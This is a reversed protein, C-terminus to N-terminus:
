SRPRNSSGSQASPRSQAAKKVKFGEPIEPPGVKEILWLITHCFSVPKGLELSLMARYESLSRYGDESISVNCHHKDSHAKRFIDSPSNSM